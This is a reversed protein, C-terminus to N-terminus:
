PQHEGHDKPMLEDTAVHWLGPPRDPKCDDEYRAALQDFEPHEDGSLWLMIVKKEKVYCVDPHLYM